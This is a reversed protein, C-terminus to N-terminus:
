LRFSKFFYKINGLYKRAGKWFSKYMAVLPAVDEEKPEVKGYTCSEYTGTVVPMTTKSESTIVRMSDESAVAYESLTAGAPVTFGLRGFRDLLFLYLDSVQQDRPKQMIRELRKKRWIRRGIFYGLIALLLIALLILLINFLIDPLDWSFPNFQNDDSNQQYTSTTGGGQSSGSQSGSTDNSNSRQSAAATAPVRKTADDSVVLDDTTWKEDDDQLNKSKMSVDPEQSYDGVGRQYVIPQTRQETILHLELAQPNLPAIIGFWVAAACGAAILVAGLASAFIGPFSVSRLVTARYASQQANRYIVLALSSVLVVLYLAFEYQEYFFQVLVCAFVSFIFWCAAGPLSRTLLFGCTVSVVVCLAGYFWNAQSGSFWGQGTMQAGAYVLAVCLVAYVVGVKVFLDRRYAAIFLVAALVAAVILPIPSYQLEPPIFYVDYVTQAVGWTSLVVLLYEWIRSKLYARFSM